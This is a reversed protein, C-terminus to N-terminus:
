IMCMIQIGTEVGSSNNICIDVSLNLVHDFKLIPFKANSIVEVYSIFNKSMNTLKIADELEELRLIVANNSESAVPVNMITVDIDSNPLLLDTMMSGFVQIIATPWIKSVIDELDKLVTRRLSIERATPKIYKTLSLIENHLIVFPSEQNNDYINSHYNTMTSSNNTNIDNNTVFSESLWPPMCTQGRRSNNVESGDSLADFKRKGTERAATQNFSIFDSTM